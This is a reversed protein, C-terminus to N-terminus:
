VTLKEDNRLALTSQPGTLDTFECIIGIDLSGQGKPSAGPQVAYVRSIKNLKRIIECTSFRTTAGQAFARSERRRGQTSM